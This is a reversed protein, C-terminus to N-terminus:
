GTQPAAWRLVSEVPRRATQLHTTSEARGLRLLLQPVGVLGLEVRLRAREQGVDTVQGLPQAVLHRGAAELLLASLGMGARVWDLAEDGTTALVLLTPREAVALERPPSPAALFQRGPADEARGVGLDLATVPIGDPREGDLAPDFVWAELEGPYRSDALLDREAAAVLVDVAVRDRDRVQALTAGAREVALRLADVVPSAVPEGAFRQRVTVRHLIAEARAVELEAPAGDHHEFRLSAVVDSGPEPLVTVDTRLGMAEAAVVLHHVLAGCSLLLQRGLPDIVSLQRTRDACVELGAEAVVVRWPQSNHVSPARTALLVLHEVQEATLVASM